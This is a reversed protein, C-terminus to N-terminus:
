NKIDAVKSRIQDAFQDSMPLPWVDEGARKAAQQVESQLAQDNSMLGAYDLGLAVVCAGTLTALDIIRSPREDLAVNLVDALVLRGEADTNHIEITKGSRATIVDGLKLSSGSIMNEVLGVLGVV